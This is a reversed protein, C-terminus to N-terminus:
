SMGRTSCSSPRSASTQRRSPRVSAGGSREAVVTVQADAAKDGDNVFTLEIEYTVETATTETASIVAIAGPGEHASASPSFVSLGMFAFAFATGLLARVAARGSM